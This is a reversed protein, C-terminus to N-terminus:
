AIEGLQDFIDPWKKRSTANAPRFRLRELLEIAGPWPGYGAEVNIHGAEGLDILQSGWSEAWSAAEMLSMWPDNRSAVLLSPFGLEKDLSAPAPGFKLPSAPAVLLAGSIRHGQTRAAEATALCGFSHAVIRIDGPARAIERQIRAAWENINPKTWDRQIVRVSDPIKTELWTQWHDPGSGHLGPVILVTAM